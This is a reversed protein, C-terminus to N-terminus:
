SAHVVVVPGHAHTLCQQSVSGLLLGAFGGRGRSGVVLMSAPSAADDMLVRSPRGSVVRQNVARHDAGLEDEVIQALGIRARRDAREREVASANSDAPDPDSGPRVQVARLPVDRLRAEEAAWALAERSAASGDVGVVVSITEVPDGGADDAAPVVAVPVNAHAAVQQSVSGLLLGPFGGLGRSGLVVLDADRTNHLVAAAVGRGSVLPVEVRVDADSVGARELADAVTRVGADHERDHALERNLPGTLRSVHIAHLVTLSASRLQAEHVAWVLARDAHASGDVAVVIKM